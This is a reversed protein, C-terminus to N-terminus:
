VKGIGSLLDTRVKCLSAIYGNLSKTFFQKLQQSTPNILCTSFLVCVSFSYPKQPLSTYLYLYSVFGFFLTMALLTSCTAIAPKVELSLFNIKNDISKIMITKELSDNPFASQFCQM